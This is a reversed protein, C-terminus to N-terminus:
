RRTVVITKWSSNGAADYARLTVTNIGTLLPVTVSWRITGTATGSGGFNNAWTIARVGVNDSATGSITISPTSVSVTGMGPAAIQLVPPTTDNSSGGGSGPNGPGTVPPTVPPTVAGSPTGAQRTIVVTKSVQSTGALATVTITNTGMVLAVNVINWSSSNVAVNGSNSGNNWNVTISGNGGNASGSLSVSAATTAVPTTNVTLSLPQVTPAGQAAYLTLIAAKDAPALTSAMRYYPYMVATPDDSHGLGLAHGLEHLAVSFLDTNVGIRWGEADDFHMDGALPEPNPASPYFTHALVGGRGDFPFGDGHVGTAFMINVTKNGNPNSGAQWSIKVVKSWEAMARLIESQQSAAPLQATLRSFVYTLNAAGLGPGDWGDGYTPISQVAAGNTTLASVCPQVPVGQELEKSAPFVYAVQEMATLAAIMAAHQRTTLRIMLHHPALDPNEVLEVGLNLLLQRARNMEVDAHFEVVYTASDFSTRTRARNINSPSSVLASLKDGAALKEVHNVGLNMLDAGATASVLLGNTPVDALVQIGRRQLEAVLLTSPAISFQLLLHVPENTFNASEVAPMEVVAGTVDTRIERTKLRLTHRSSNGAFASEQASSTPSFSSQPFATLSLFFSTGLFVRLTQHM